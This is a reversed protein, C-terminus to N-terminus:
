RRIRRRCGLGILGLLGMAALALTSPEPVVANTNAVWVNAFEVATLPVIVNRATGPWNDHVIVWDTIGTPDDVDGAPIYGVATVAHGLSGGGDAGNWVEDTTPDTFPYSISGFTFYRGGYQSEDQAGGVPNLQQGPVLNWHAWSVIMTRNSNIEGVIEAFASPQNPHPAAPAGSSALGAAFAGRGQTGTTAAGPIHDNLYDLLGVDMDRLFTGAHAGNGRFAGLNNTDMYWGPDTPPAVPPAGGVAPRSFGDALYDQWSPGVAWNVTTGPAATTDAVLVNRVDYWHGALNSASTPACWANWPDLGPVNPDPGPGGPPPPPAYTYPQNWDPVLGNVFTAAGFAQSSVLCLV